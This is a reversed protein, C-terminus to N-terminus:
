QLGDRVGATCNLELEVNAGRVNAPRGVIDYPVSNWLVRCTDPNVDTRYRISFQVDITAQERGAAFMDRGSTPRARAWVTALDSWSTSEQGLADVSSARQQITIRQNLQGADM